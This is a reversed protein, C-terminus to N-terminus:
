TCFQINITFIVAHITKLLCLTYSM